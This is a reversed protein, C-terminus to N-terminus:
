LGNEVALSKGIEIQARGQCGIESYSIRDSRPPCCNAVAAGSRGATSHQTMVTRFEITKDSLMGANALQTPQSRSATMYRLIRCRGHRCCVGQSPNRFM